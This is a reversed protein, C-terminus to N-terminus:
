YVKMPSTRSKVPSRGREAKVPSKRSPTYSPLMKMKPPLGGDTTDSGADDQEDFLRHRQQLRPTQVPVWMFGPGAEPAVSPDHMAAGSPQPATAPGNNMKVTHSHRGLTLNNAFACLLLVAFFFGQQLILIM